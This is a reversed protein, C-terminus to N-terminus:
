SSTSDPVACADCTGSSSTATSSSWTRRAVSTARATRSTSSRRRSRTDRPPSRVSSVRSAPIRRSTTGRGHSSRTAAQAPHEHCVGPQQDDAGRDAAPRQVRVHERVVEDPRTASPCVWVKSRGDLYQPQPLGFETIADDFRIGHLVAALGYVEGARQPRQAHAPWADHSVRLRGDIQARPIQGELRDLVDADGHLDRAPQEACQVSSAHERARGLVPLLIAMLIGIIGIVVLLEVLTFAARRVGSAAPLEIMTFASDGRGDRQVPTM